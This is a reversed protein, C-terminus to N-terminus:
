LVRVSKYKSTKNNKVFNFGYSLFVEHAGWGRLSAMPIEYLYGLRLGSIIDMGLMVGLAEQFRYSLGGRYKDKVALMASLEWQWTRFDTRVLASPTIVFDPGPLRFHYGGMVYMAGQVTFETEDGWELKPKTLHTYSVGAYGNQHSYYVGLGMDFGMDEEHAQPIHIDGMVDHYDSSVDRVSDGRFGLSMFGVDVGASLVGADGLDFKYCYQAHVMKNSFLGVNDNVFRVGAAHQTKGISFPAEFQVFTTHGANAVGMSGIRHAGMVEMFGPTKGISAPNYVGTLYMYHGVSPDFQATLAYSGLLMLCVFLLRKMSNLYIGDNWNM